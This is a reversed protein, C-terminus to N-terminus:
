AGLLCTRNRGARKAEYLATDAQSLLDDLRAAEGGALTAIGISVTMGLTAGKETALTQRAISERLREALLNAGAGDTEPLIIAFEEGGIRGIIDIERLADHCHAALTQLAADGARHGHTDNIAKFRDIDLMLLSLPRGFRLTRALEVEGQQIFHRRNALGTLYDVQAQARLEHELEVRETVDQVTGISRLPQGVADYDTKGREHVHKVRGDAMLLRHTIEYPQRTQLSDQYAQNVMARDEPHIANLFAEYSAGFQEPDIEFIRYIEDSWTLHNKSLDLEWSGLHALRQAEKLRSESSQQLQAYARSLEVYSAGLEDYLVNLADFLVETGRMVHERAENRAAEPSIGRQLAAIELAMETDQGLIHFALWKVLYRLLLDIALMVDGQAEESIQNIHDLFQAHERRHTTSHEPSIGAAQMLADEASFHYKAYDALAGLAATLDAVSGGSARLEGLHNIIEVLSKHQADVEALGTEYRADWKFTSNKM